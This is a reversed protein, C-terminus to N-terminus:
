LNKTKKCCMTLDCMEVMPVLFYRTSSAYFRQNVPLELEHVSNQDYPDDADFIRIFIKGPPNLVLETQTEIVVIYLDTGSLFDNILFFYYSLYIFISEVKEEPVKPFSKSRRIELGEVDKRDNNRALALLGFWFCLVVM